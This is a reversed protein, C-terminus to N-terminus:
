ARDQTITMLDQVPGGTWDNLNRLWKKRQGDRHEGGQLFNLSCDEVFQGAPDSPCVLRSDFIFIFYIVKQRLNKNFVIM